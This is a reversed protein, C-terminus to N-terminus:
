SSTAIFADIQSTIPKQRIRVYYVNVVKTEKCEGWLKSKLSKFTSSKLNGEMEGFCEYIHGGLSQHFKPRCSPVVDLPVSEKSTLYVPNFLTM